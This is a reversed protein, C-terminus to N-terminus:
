WLDSSNREDWCNAAVNDINYLTNREWNFESRSVSILGALPLFLRLWFIGFAPSTGHLIHFHILAAISKSFTNLWCYGISIYCYGISSYTHYCCHKVFIYSFQLAGLAYFVHLVWSLSVITVIKRRLAGVDRSMRSRIPFSLSAM